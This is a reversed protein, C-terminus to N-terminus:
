RVFCAQARGRHRFGFAALKQAEEADFAVFVVRGRVIVEWVVDRRM